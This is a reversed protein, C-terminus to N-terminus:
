DSTIVVKSPFDDVHLFSQWEELFFGQFYYYFTWLKYILVPMKEKRELESNEEYKLHSSKILSPTAHMENSTFLSFFKNAESYAGAM